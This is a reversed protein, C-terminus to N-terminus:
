RMSNLKKRQHPTLERTTKGEPKRKNGVTQAPQTAAQQSIKIANMQAILTDLQSRPVSERAIQESAQTRQWRTFSVLNNLTPGIDPRADRQFYALSVGISSQEPAATQAAQPKIRALIDSSNRIAQNKSLYYQTLVVMVADHFGQELGDFPNADQARKLLYRKFQEALASMTEQTLSSPGAIQNILTTLEAMSFAGADPPTLLPKFQKLTHILDLMNVYIQWFLDREALASALATVFAAAEDPSLGPLLDAPDTIDSYFLLDSFLAGALSLDGEYDEFGSHRTWYILARSLAKLANDQPSYAPGNEVIKGLEILINPIDALNLTSRRM